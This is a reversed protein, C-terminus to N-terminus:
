AIEARRYRITAVLWGGIAVGALVGVAVGPSRGAETIDVDALGALVSRAYGGISLRSAGESARAIANEWVLLYALGWWLARRLWLGLAVFLGAYALTALIASVAVDAVLEPTGAVLPAVVLPVVVLSGVVTAVALVGAAPLQWRAVPKLWLYVLLGDDVLDGLSSTALWLVCLPIAVTLGYGAAMDATAQLPDDDGRTLGGLLVALAGLAAIGLLRLPTLQLRLVIVYLQRLTTLTAPRRVTDATASTM